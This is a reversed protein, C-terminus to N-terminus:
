RDINFLPDTLLKPDIHALAYSVAEDMTMAAGEARLERVREKGITMAAIEGAERLAALLFNANSDTAGTDPSETKKRGASARLFAAHAAGHLTAAAEPQDDALARASLALTPGAQLLAASWRFLSMTKGSLALAVDWDRLRGAVMCATLMGTSVEEGPASGWENSERLLARARGPDTEVLALAQANLGMMIAGPMGSRRALSVSREADTTAEDIGVGWLVASSVGYALFIAALGPYGDASALESARRYAAVADAYAGISLNVL